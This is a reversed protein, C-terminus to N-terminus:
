MCVYMYMCQMDACVYMPFICNIEKKKERKMNQELNHIMHLLATPLLMVYIRAEYM